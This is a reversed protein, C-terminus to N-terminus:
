DKFLDQRKNINNVSTTGQKPNIIRNFGVKVQYAMPQHSLQDAMHKCPNDPMILIQHWEAEHWFRLLLWFYCKSADPLLSWRKQLNLVWKQDNKCGGTAHAKTYNYLIILCFSLNITVKLNPRKKLYSYRWRARILIIKKRM